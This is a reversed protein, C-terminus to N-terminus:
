LGPVMLCDEYMFNESTTRETVKRLDFVIPNLPIVDSGHLLCSKNFKKMTEIDICKEFM